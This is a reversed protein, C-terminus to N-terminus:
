ANKQLERPHRRKKKKAVLRVSDQSEPTKSPRGNKKPTEEVNDIDMEDDAAQSAKKPPPTRSNKRSGGSNSPPDMENDSMDGEANSRQSGSKRTDALQSIAVKEDFIDEDFEIGEQLSEDSM